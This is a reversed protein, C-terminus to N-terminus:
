EAASSLPRLLLSNAPTIGVGERVTESQNRWRRITRELAGSDDDAERWSRSFSPDDSRPRKAEELMDFRVRMPITVGEGSIICEGKRLAPIADLFSRGGEPMANRVCDQDRENNLRMSIITGCQSLAGEALDSPRQTVLALAVGYKRGEKAIRELAKRVAAGSAVREAPVYRHAEECVLLVPRQRESRSWIAHDMVIRSLLAVVVSVIDSPVGSLDVVSIPRGHGPLRLLNALFPQMTDASLVRNFMFGYRSDRLVEDIRNKLRLYRTIESNHELLGMAANLAGILDAMVYPVPSDVTLDPYAKALLSKARAEFLCKGLIAMDLDREAGEAAIFVECHEEFNMLWYPLELNDVNFMQGTDAFATAYEGHPDLVVIHGNPSREIIRHLILATATSKGSGTSGLLAFHKGLLADIILGARVDDTPYVTGIEVIADMNGGFLAVLDDRTVAAVRDGTRPYRTVGRRFDSLTGGPSQDGEGVLDIHAIIAGSAPDPRTDRVTALLWVGDASIKVQGGVAGSLRLTPDGREALRALAARDLHVVAGGFGVDAITGIM